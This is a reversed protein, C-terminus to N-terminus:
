LFMSENYIHTLREHYSLYIHLKLTYVQVDTVALGFLLNMVIIAMFFMFATLMLHTTFPFYTQEYVEELDGSLNGNANGNVMTINGKFHKLEKRELIDEYELEGVLM